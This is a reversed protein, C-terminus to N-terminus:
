CWLAGSIGYCRPIDLDCRRFVSVGHMGISVRLIETTFNATGSQFADGAKRPKESDLQSTSPSKIRQTLATLRPQSRRLGSDAKVKTKKKKQKRGKKKVQERRTKDELGLRGEDVFSDGRGLRFLEVMDRSM